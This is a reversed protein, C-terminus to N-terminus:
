CRGFEPRGAVHPPLTDRIVIGARYEIIQFPGGLV